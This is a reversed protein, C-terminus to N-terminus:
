KGFYLLLLLFVWLGDMFHWYYSAVEAALSRTVNSKEFNRFGVYLLACIGGLLHLAHAATFVYFFGSALTSRAYVGQDALSRWAMLQGAVFLLGLGTTLFWLQRFGRGDSVALKKRAFELTLSSLLLVSTNLWLITPVHFTIWKTSTARLVIFAAVIAMFFMLISIMALAIATAYRRPSPKGWSRDRGRDPDDDGDGGDRGAPPRPGGGGGIDDIILEIDDLITPSPM